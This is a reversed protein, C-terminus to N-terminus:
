RISYFQLSIDKMLLSPSNLLDYQSYTEYVSFAVCLPVIEHIKTLDGLSVLGAGIPTEDGDEIRVESLHLRCFQFASAGPWKQLIISENWQLSGSATPYSPQTEEVIVKWGPKDLVTVSIRFANPRGYISELFPFGVIAGLSISCCCTRQFINLLPGRDPVRRGRPFSSLEQGSPFTSHFPIDSARSPDRDAGEKTPDHNQGHTLDRDNVSCPVTSLVFSANVNVREEEGFDGPFRQLNRRFLERASNPQVSFGSPFENGRRSGMSTPSGPRRRQASNVLQEPATILCYVPLVQELRSTEDALPMERNSLCTKNIWYLYPVDKSTSHPLSHHVRILINRTPSHPGNVVLQLELPPSGRYPMKQLDWTASFYAHHQPKVTIVSAPCTQLYRSAGNLPVLEMALSNTDTMNKACLVNTVIYQGRGSLFHSPFFFDVSSVSVAGYNYELVGSISSLSKEGSGDATGTFAHTFTTLRGEKETSKTPTSNNESVSVIQSEEPNKRELRATELPKEPVSSSINLEVVAHVTLSDLPNLNPLLHVCYTGWKQCDIMSQVNIIGMGLVREAGGTNESLRPTGMPRFERSENDGVCVAEIVLTSDEELAVSIGPFTKGWTIGNWRPSFQLSKPPVNGLVKSNSSIRIWLNNDWRQKVGGISWLTAGSLDGGWQQRARTSWQTSEEATDILTFRNVYVIYEKPEVRKSISEPSRNIISSPVVAESILVTPSNKVSDLSPNGEELVIDELHEENSFSESGSDSGHSALQLGLAAPSSIQEEQPAVEKKADNKIARSSSNYDIADDFRPATTVALEPTTSTSTISNSNNRLDDSLEDSM